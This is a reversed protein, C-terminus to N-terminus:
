PSMVERTSCATTVKEELRFLYIRQVVCLVHSGSLQNIRVLQVNILRM